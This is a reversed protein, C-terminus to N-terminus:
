AARLLYETVMSCIAKLDVFDVAMATFPEWTEANVVKMGLWRAVFFEAVAGTSREWGPLLAIGDLGEARLSLLHDVDRKVSERIQEPSNTWTETALGLARDSEAPSIVRFGKVRGQASAADFAPFNLDDYGRMPGSLYFTRM